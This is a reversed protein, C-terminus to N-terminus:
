IVWVQRVMWEATRNVISCTGGAHGVEAYREIPAIGPAEDLALGLFRGDAADPACRFARHVPLRHSIWGLSLSLTSVPNVVSIIRQGGM